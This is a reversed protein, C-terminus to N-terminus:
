SPSAAVNLTVMGETYSPSPNSVYLNVRGTTSSTGTLVPTSPANLLVILTGTVSILITLIILFALMNKSVGAM